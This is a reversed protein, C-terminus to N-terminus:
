QLFLEKLLKVVNEPSGELAIEDISVEKVNRATHIKKKVGSLRISIDGGGDSSYNVLGTMVPDTREIKLGSTPDSQISVGTKIANTRKAFEKLEEPLVGSINAMNPTILEFTVESIKGKHRSVLDWFAQREVIPEWLVRLQSKALTPDLSEFLLNVVAKTNQFAVSRHQVAVLQQEPDNWVAVLIKPWNDIIETKFDRTEHQLSRNAAMRYLFVDGSDILREVSIEYKASRLTASSRLARAFIENKRKVVDDISQADYLDGQFFRDKPLLQYRYLHFRANVQNM